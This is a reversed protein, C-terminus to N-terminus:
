FPFSLHFCLVHRTHNVDSTAMQLYMVHKLELGEDTIDDMGRVHSCVILKYLGKPWM